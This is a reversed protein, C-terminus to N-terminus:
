KQLSIYLISSTFKGGVKDVYNRYEEYDIYYSKGWSSIHLMIKGPIPDTEFLPMLILQYM